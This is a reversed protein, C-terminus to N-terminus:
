AGYLCPAEQWGPKVELVRSGGIAAGALALMPVALYDEPCGMARAGERVYLALPEPLVDTPFAPVPPLDLAKPGPEAGAAPRGGNPRGPEAPVPRILSEIRKVKDAPAGNGGAPHDCLSKDCKPCVVCGGRGCEHAEPSRGRYPRNLRTGC